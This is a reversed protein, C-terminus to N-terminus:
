TTTINPWTLGLKNHFTMEIENVSDDVHQQHLKSTVQLHKSEDECM